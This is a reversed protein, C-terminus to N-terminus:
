AHHGDDDDGVGILGHRHRVRQKCTTHIHHFDGQSVSSAQRGNFLHGFVDRLHM